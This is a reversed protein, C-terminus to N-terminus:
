GRAAEMFIAKVKARDRAEAELDRQPAGVFTLESHAGHMAASLIQFERLADEPSDARISHSGEMHFEIRYIPM